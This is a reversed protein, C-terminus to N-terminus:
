IAWGTFRRMGTNARSTMRGIRLRIRPCFTSSPPRTPEPDCARGSADQELRALIYKAFKKRQNGTDLDLLAFDQEFKADEVYISKLREFIQAPSQAASELVAKAAQHYVTELVNPNLDGVVSYRFSITSVLKLLRAFDDKSFREWAAFLLPTM